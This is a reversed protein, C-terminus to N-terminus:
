KNGALAIHFRRKFSDRRRKNWISIFFQVYFVLHEQTMLRASAKICQLFASFQRFDVRLQFNTLIDMSSITSFVHKPFIVLNGFKHTNQYHAHLIMFCWKLHNRYTAICPHQLMKEIKM